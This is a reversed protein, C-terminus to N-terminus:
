RVYGGCALARKCFRHSSQEAHEAGDRRARPDHDADDLDSAHATVKDQNRAQDREKTSQHHRATGNQPTAGHASPNGHAARAM